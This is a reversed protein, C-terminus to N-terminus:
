VLRILNAPETDSANLLGVLDIVPINGAVNSADRFTANSNAIIIADTGEVAGELNEVILEGITPLVSYLYDKNAGILKRPVIEPDFIRIKIGDAVLRSALLV